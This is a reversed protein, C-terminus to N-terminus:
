KFYSNLDEEFYIDTESIKYDEGNEHQLFYEGIKSEIKPSRIQRVGTVKVVAPSGVLLLGGEGSSFDKNVYSKASVISYDPVVAGKVTSCNNGFWVSKGIIVKGNRNRVFGNHVIYHYNTDCIINGFAFRCDKGMVIESNSLLRTGGGFEINKGLVVHGGAIRLVCGSAFRVYGELNLKGNIMLIMSPSSSPEFLDQNYGWKMLGFRPKCLLEICSHSLILNCRGYIVLPFHIADRFPFLRFNAILTKYYNFHYRSITSKLIQLYIGIRKKVLLM